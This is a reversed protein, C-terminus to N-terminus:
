NESVILKKYGRNLGNVFVKVLYIGSKLGLNNINYETTGTGPKYIRVLSGSFDYIRIDTEPEAGDDFSITLSNVTPNPYVAFKKEEATVPESKSVDIDYEITSVAQYIEKTINNQIFAIVEIDANDAIKEIVWTREALSYGEDKNWTKKLSIGGADPIFKRFVNYFEIEGLAGTHARNEKETVAIYLTVNGYSIDELAKIHGSVSLIGGNVKTILDVEFSPNILSRRALDNSDIDSILYDFINAYNIGTGGDIFSYPIRALGYFLFRASADGPNDNYYPDPGPFNTHYQINIIDATDRNAIDSVMETAISGAASSNNTFHEVLVGRTRSGIWIDDFAMGDNDQSTGDSGYAIRLKVDKKGALEDLRHRAEIWANDKQDGTTWGIKDGGPEGRILTSNYWNIGDDLTGVYEWRGSDGTMYQLAAGDRNRDFRRWLKLSIMPRQVSTLDFCPSIISSSEVEQDALNYKTFWANDGSAASNIYVRDPTGFSWINRVEYGQIWSGNGNEFDEFYDDSALSITPRIFIQKAVTDHCGPYNTRVIYEVPLYGTKKKPYKPDKVTYLSDGDFFNWSRSKVPSASITSDFLLLYDAPHFCENKWYFDAVPKVGLDIISDKSAQCNNVTTANLIIKHLSGTKYLYGPNRVSSLITDGEEYFEWLWRRVADASLTTNNFKTTDTSSEICVDAVEFAVDPSPNITVPVNVSSICGRNTKYTYTVEIYGLALSPDFFGNVVPGTFTGGTHSVLLEFPALNNCYSSGHPLNTIAVQTVADIVFPRSIKILSLGEMAMFFLTDEKNGANMRGPDIIIGNDNVYGTVADPDTIQFQKLLSGSPIDKVYITDPGGNQCYVDRFSDFYMSISTVSLEKSVKQLCTTNPNDINLQYNVTFPSKTYDVSSPSFMGNSVGEGWFVGGEPIATLLVDDDTVSFSERLMDFIVLTDSFEIPGSQTRSNRPIVAFRIVQDIDQAKLIYKTSDKSTGRQILANGRYWRYESDKERYKNVYNYKGTLEAGIARTGSICVERALPVTGSPDTVVVTYNSIVPDGTDPYGTLSVPIVEFRIRSDVDEITLVYKISDAGSIAVSERYWQYKSEGQEDLDPDKYEYYGTLTQGLLPPTGTISVNEANPKSNAPGYEPSKFITDKNNGSGARPAVGFKFYMGQEDMTIVHILMTDKDIITFPGTKFDSSYWVYETGEEMDGETDFYTYNGLLAGNVLKSGTIIVSGAVPPDNIVPGLWILSTDIVGPSTGTLAAPKVSFGIYKDIENDTLKYSRSTAGSIEEPSSGDPYDSYYWQYISNDEDEWDGDDDSFFYEGYLTLGSRPEGAIHVNLAVPPANAYLLAIIRGASKYYDADETIFGSASVKASLLIIISLIVAKKM